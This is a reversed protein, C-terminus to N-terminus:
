DLFSGTFHLRGTQRAPRPGPHSKEAGSQAGVEHAELRHPLPAFDKIGAVVGDLSGGAALALRAALRANALNHEGMLKSKAVAAVVADEMITDLVMIRGTNHHIAKEIRDMNRAFAGLAVRFDGDRDILNLKDRYYTEVSGHWDVHEPYLNTLGILTPAFNMDATQYSSLELVVTPHHDRIDLPPVGVNGALGADIGSRTLMLHVLTATTSKGKTGTIAIIERGAGYHAHWMNLNSTVEIGLARASAFFPKYLSVGPSKVITAFQQTTLASDLDAPPIIETDEIDADGTDVTVFVKTKPAIERLFDRTSRAERGAGYLLIPHDLRM